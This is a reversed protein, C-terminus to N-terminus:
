SRGRKRTSPTEGSLEALRERILKVTQGGADYGHARAHELLEECHEASSCEDLADILYNNPRVPVPPTEVTATMRMAIDPETGRAGRVKNKNKEVRAKNARIEALLKPEKPM